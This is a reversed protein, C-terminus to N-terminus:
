TLEVCTELDRLVLSIQLVATAGAVHRSLAVLTSAHFAIVTAFGTVIGLVTGHWLSLSDAVVALLWSM